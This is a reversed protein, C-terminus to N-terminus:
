IKYNNNIYQIVQDKDVKNEQMLILSRKMFWWSAQKSDTIGLLKEIQRKKALLKEIQSKKTMNICYLM